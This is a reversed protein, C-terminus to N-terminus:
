FASDRSAMAEKFTKPDDEVQLIIPVKRIFHGRSGEVLSFSILQSDIENPGLEKVKRIRKSKRLEPQKEIVKLSNEECSDKNTPAQSSKGKSTLNEFLEVDRSEVIINYELDLLRYAKSNSAYGVFASKIWRPGLKTRKPDLNKYYALCGWVKFYRINLKRGKWIEYPSTQNKQSPIRNLIHCAALLAEGWLNFSLEYHMLMDNIMEQFTRNKREALGNQQPTCSFM